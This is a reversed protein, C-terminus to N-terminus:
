TKAIVLKGDRVTFDVFTGAGISLSDAIEKPIRVAVSGGLNFTKCKFLGVLRDHETEDIWEDKCNPCVEVTAWVGKEIERREIILETECFPCQTM